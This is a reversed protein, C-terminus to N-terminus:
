SWSSIKKLYGIIGKFVLRFIIIKDVKLAVRYLTLNRKYNIKHLLSVWKISLAKKKKILAENNHNLITNKLLYHLISYEEKLITFSRENYIGANLITERFYNMPKAIYYLDGELLMENWFLSDGAYRYNTYIKPVKLAFEKRFLVASANYIGHSYVGFNLYEDTGKNKFNNSYRKNGWNLCSYLKKDNSDIRISQCFAIAVKQNKELIPVLTSLFEKDAYDDSEAIWIFRGKSISIGKEWQKFPSGSNKKNLIVTIKKYRSAYFRIKELSDDTSCDDLILIEFDKYKQKLVSDIRKELYKSHNYNPIIVTVTPSSHM